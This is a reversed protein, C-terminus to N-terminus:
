QEPVPLPATMDPAHSPPTRAISFWHTLSQQLYLTASTLPHSLRRQSLCLSLTAPLYSAEFVLLAAAPPCMCFIMTSAVNVTKAAVSPM